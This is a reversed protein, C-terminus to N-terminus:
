KEGQELSKIKIDVLKVSLTLENNTMSDQLEILFNLEEQDSNQKLQLIKHADLIEGTALKLLAFGRQLPKHIAAKLMNLSQFTADLKTKESHIRRHILTVLSNEHQILKNQENQIRKQVKSGIIEARSFYKDLTNNVFENLYRAAGTPTKEALFAVEDAISIDETHGIATIVPISSYCISKAIELDDFWRLDLRSGGGRTVIICDFNGDVESMVRKFTSCINQSTAQGQMNVDYLVVSFSFRSLKLESVFDTAARSNAATFLAIRLPLEPMQKNRNLDYLGRKRLEKIIAQRTLTLDGLTYNIDIDDVIVNIRAQEKRFECHVKIKIKLGEELPLTSNKQELFKRKGAWLICSMAFASQMKGYNQSQEASEVLDFYVHGNSSKLSSIEGVIWFDFSLHKIIVDNVFSVFETVGWIKELETSYAGTLNNQNKEERLPINSVPSSIIASAGLSINSAPSSIVSPAGARPVFGLQLVTEMNEATHNVLWVKEPTKWRGGAKKIQDKVPFTDGELAIFSGSIYCVRM